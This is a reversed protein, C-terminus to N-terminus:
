LHHSVRYRIRPEESDDPQQSLRLKEEQKQKANEQLIAEIKKWPYGADSGPYSCNGKQIFAVGKKNKYVQIGLNNMEREFEPLDCAVALTKQLAEKLIDLRINKRALQRQQFSLRDVHNLTHQLNYRNELDRRLAHLKYVSFSGRAVHQDFGVKNAVIHIHQNPKDKHLVSVYQHKDFELVRACERSIDVWTSKSLPENLSTALVIHFVPKSINRKQGAVENFQHVLDKCDGFCQNYYLIEARDKYEPVQEGNQDLVMKDELCYSLRTAFYIQEFISAIM